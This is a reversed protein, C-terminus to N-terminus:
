PRGQHQMQLLMMDQRAELGAVQKSILEHRVREEKLTERQLEALATQQRELATIQNRDRNIREVEIEQQASSFASFISGAIVLTAVGPGWLALIGPPKRADLLTAQTAVDTALAGIQEDRAQSREQVARGLETISIELARIREDIAGLANHTAM